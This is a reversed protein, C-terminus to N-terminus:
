KQGGHLNVKPGKITHLIIQIYERRASSVNCEKLVRSSLPRSDM